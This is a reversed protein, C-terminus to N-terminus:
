FYVVRRLFSCANIRPEISLETTFLGLIGKQSFTIKARKENGEGKLERKGPFAPYPPFKRICTSYIRSVPTNHVM